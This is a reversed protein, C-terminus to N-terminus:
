GILNSVMIVRDLIPLGAAAEQQRIEQLGATLKSEEVISFGLKSYFPANWPVDRFTSLFVADYGHFKAWDVVTEILMRGIGRNGHAPEVDIEKLYLGRDLDCTIAFGVVLDSQDVAVWIQGAQFRDSVFDLPLPEADVLWAYPTDLFLKSASIEIAGLKPLDDIQASRVRYDLIINNMM